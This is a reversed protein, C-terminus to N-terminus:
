RHRISRITIVFGVALVDTLKDVECAYPRSSVEFGWKAELEDLEAKTWEKDDGHNGCASALLASSCGLLLSTLRM